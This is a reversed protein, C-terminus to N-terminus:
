GVRASFWDNLQYGLTGLLQWTSDSAVGFGGVDAYRPVLRPRTARELAARGGPGGLGRRGPRQARAPSRHQTRDRHRRVLDPGRRPRRPQGESAGAGSLVRRRHCFRHQYRGRRRRVPTRAHGRGGFLALYSLDTVIGFRGRRAEAALMLAIDTNEIIDDFGADVSAPPLGSIAGVDGELSAFWAYPTLGFSWGDAAPAATDQAGAPGGAGLALGAALGVSAPRLPSVRLPM